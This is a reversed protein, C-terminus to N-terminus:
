STWYHSETMSFVIYCRFAKWQFLLEAQWYINDVSPVVCRRLMCQVLAFSPYTQRVRCYHIFIFEVFVVAPSIKEGQIKQVCTKKVNNIHCYLLESSTSFWSHCNLDCAGMIQVNLNTVQHSWHVNFILRQTRDAASRVELVIAETSKLHM